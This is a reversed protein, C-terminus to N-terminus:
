VIIYQKDINIYQYVIYLMSILFKNKPLLIEINTLLLIEANNFKLTVADKVKAKLYKPREKCGSNFGSAYSNSLL